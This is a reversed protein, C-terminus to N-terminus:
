RNQDASLSANGDPNEGRSGIRTNWRHTQGPLIANTTFTEKWAPSGESTIRAEFTVNTLPFASRNTVCIDDSFVGWDIGWEFKVKTLDEFERSKRERLKALDPDKRAHSIDLFGRDKVAIGFIEMADDLRDNISLLCILNYVFNLDGGQLKVVSEAIELSERHRGQAALAWALQARGAGSEDLEDYDLLTRCFRVARDASRVPASGWGGEGL